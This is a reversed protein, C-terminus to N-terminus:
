NAKKSEDPKSKKSDRRLLEGDKDCTNGTYHWSGDTGDCRMESGNQCVVSGDSYSVGNYECDPM